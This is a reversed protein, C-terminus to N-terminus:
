KSTRENLISQQLRKFEKNNQLLTNVVTNITKLQETNMYFSTPLKNFKNALTTDALNKASINIIYPKELNMLSAKAFGVGSRVEQAVQWVQELYERVAQLRENSLVDMATTTAYLVVKLSTPPKQKTCIPDPAETGADVILVIIRKLPQKANNLAKNIIGNTKCAELVRKIGTNGVLGGDQNHLWENSKNNLFMRMKYYTYQDIDKDKNRFARKFKRDKLLTDTCLTKGYNRVTMPAFGVPFASSAACAYGIPYKSLDSSLYKFFETSYVFHNGHALLTANIFIKPHKSISGFTQNQFLEKNYYESAIDTRTYYPSILYPWNWPKLLQQILGRQINRKVAIDYFAQWNNKYIPLAATIFSGGSVGSSYDIEQLLSTNTIGTKTKYTKYPIQNLIDCAYWSMAMARSGGGSFTTFLLMTSDQVIVTSDQVPVIDNIPANYKPVCSLCSIYISIPILLYKCINLIKKLM